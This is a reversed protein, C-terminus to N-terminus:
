FEIGSSEVRAEVIGLLKNNKTYPNILINLKSIMLIKAGNDPIARKLKNTIPKNKNELRILKNEQKKLSHGLVRFLFFIM